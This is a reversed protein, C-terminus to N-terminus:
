ERRVYGIIVCIIILIVYNPVRHIPSLLIYLSFWKYCISFSNIIQKIQEFHKVFSKIVFYIHKTKIIDDNLFNIM